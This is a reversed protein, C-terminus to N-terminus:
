CARIAHIFTIDEQTPSKPVNHTWAAVAILIGALAVGVRLFRRMLRYGM